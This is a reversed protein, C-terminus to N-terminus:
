ELESWPVDPYTTKRDKLSLLEVTKKAKSVSKVECEVPTKVPQGTKKAIPRFNVVAGKKPEKVPKSEEGASDGESRPSRIMDAVDAWSEASNVEDETYGAKVALETLKDEADSAGETGGDAEQALSDLDGFEDFGETAATTEGTEHLDASGNTSVTPAYHSEESHDEVGGETELKYGPIVGLWEVNVRPDSGAGPNKTKAETEYTYPGRNQVKRSPRGNEDLEYLWYMGTEDKAITTRKGIWTRYRFCIPTDPNKSTKVLAAMANRLCQEVATSAMTEFNSPAEWGFIRLWDLMYKFHDEFTKRSRDGTRDLTDCLPERMWFLTGEVHETVMQGMENRYSHEKPLIAVAEAVFCPKDKLKDGSKYTDFKLDRLHAIGGNIGPPMQTGALNIKVPEAVATAAAKGLRNGLHALIGTTQTQAPM